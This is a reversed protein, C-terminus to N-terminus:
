LEFPIVPLGNKGILTANIPNSKWAYRVKDGVENIIIEKDHAKGTVNRWTGNVFIELDGTSDNDQLPQDMIVVMGEGRKEIKVPQPGQVGNLLAM